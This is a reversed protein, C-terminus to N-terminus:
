WPMRPPSGLQMTIYLEIDELHEIRMTGQGDIALIFRDCFLPWDPVTLRTVPQQGLSARLSRDGFFPESVTRQDPDRQYLPIQFTSITRSATYLSDPFYGIRQVTGFLEFAVPTSVGAAFVNTGVLKFGLETIRHNWFLDWTGGPRNRQVLPVDTTQGPIVRVQNYTLPFEIRLRKFETRNAPDQHARDLLLARFRQISRRELDPDKVYVNADSDYRYDILGFLDRRLSIPSGQFSNADWTNTSHSGRFPPLRLTGDWAKLADFFAQAQLHNGVGFISEAETFEDFEGNNLPEAPRDSDGQKVPNSFRETWAAEAMRALTYLDIRYQQLVSQYKEEEEEARFALAPDRYWLNDTGTQFFVHDEVLRHARALLQRLEAGAIAVNVVVANLEEVAISQDVLLNKIFARSNIANIAVTESAVRLARAAHQVALLAKSPSAHTITGSSLGCACISIDPASAALGIALEIAEYAIGNVTITATEDKFRALEISMRQAYGDVEARKARVERIAQVLRLAQISMLSGDQFGPANLDGANILEDFKNTVVTLFATRSSSNRLHDYDSPNIGTIELIEGELSSRLANEREFNASAAEESDKLASEVQQFQKVLRSYTDRSRTVQNRLAETHWASVLATQTPREGALILQRLRLADTVSVRSQDIRAREYESESGSSGDDLQAALPLVALFQAHINERLVEEARRLMRDKEETGRKVGAGSGVFAARWLQNAYGVASLGLRELASGYLYAVSPSAERDEVSLGGFNPDNFDTHPLIVSTQEDFTVYHPMNPFVIGVARLQGTPDEAVYQLIDKIGQLFYLRAYAIQKQSTGPFVEPEEKPLERSDTPTVGGPYPVRLANLLDRNGAYLYGTTLSELAEWAVVKAQLSVPPHGSPLSAPEPPELRRIDVAESIAAKLLPRSPGATDGLFHSLLRTRTTSSPFGKLYARGPVLSTHFANTLRAYPSVEAGHAPGTVVGLGLVFGLVLMGLRPARPARPNGLRNEVLANIPHVPNM